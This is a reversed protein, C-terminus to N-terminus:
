THLHPADVQQTVRGLQAHEIKLVLLVQATERFHGLVIPIISRTRCLVWHFRSLGDPAERELMGQDARAGCCPWLTRVHEKAVGWM